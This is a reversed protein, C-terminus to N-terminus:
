VHLTCWDCTPQESPVLRECGRCLRHGTVEPLIHGIGRPSVAVETYSRQGWAEEDLSGPQVEIVVDTPGAGLTVFRQDRPETVFILRPAPVADAAGGADLLTADRVRSVVAQPTWRVLKTGTGLARLSGVRGLDVVASRYPRSLAALSRTEGGLVLSLARAHRTDVRTAATLMATRWGISLAALGTLAKPLTVVRDRGIIRSARTLQHVIGRPVGQWPVILTPASEAWRMLDDLLAAQGDYGALSSPPLTVLSGPPLHLDPPLSTRIVGDWVVIVKLRTTPDAPAPPRTGDDIRQGVIDATM